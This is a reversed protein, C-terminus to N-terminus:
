CVCVCSLYKTLSFWMEHAVQVSSKFDGTTRLVDLADYLSLNETRGTSQRKAFWSCPVPCDSFLEEWFATKKFYTSCFADRVKVNKKICYFVCM